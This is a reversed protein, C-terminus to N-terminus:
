ELSQLIQEIFLKSDAEEDTNLLIFAANLLQDNSLLKDKNYKQEIFIDILAELKEENFDRDKFHSKVIDKYTEKRNEKQIKMEFRICRRLFAPSFEREGNSTMIIIPFDNKCTVVGNAPITLGGDLTVAKGTRKVEPIHFEQEEFIHLMDNPLDVDSKDIEDILVVRDDTDLFAEGIPGLTLYDKIEIKKKRKKTEHKAMQIDYLRALADYDYLADKLESKSTIHWKLLPKDGIDKAIDKALSTKGVGPEGTILLPRRLYIAANVADLLEPSSTYYYELEEKNSVEKKRWPPMKGEERRATIKKDKDKYIHWNNSM